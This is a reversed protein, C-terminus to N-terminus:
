IGSKVLDKYMSVLIYIFNEFLYKELTIALECKGILFWKKMAVYGSTAISLM